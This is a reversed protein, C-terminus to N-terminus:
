LKGLRVAETHREVFLKIIAEELKKDKILKGQMMAKLQKPDLKSLEKWYNTDKLLNELHTYEEENKTKTPVDMVDEIKITLKKDSGRIVSLEKEKAYKIVAQKLEDLEKKIFSEQEKLDRYENVLKVGDDKMFKNLKMQETQYIHKYNPCEDQFDCWKCLESQKPKFNDTETTTEVAQILSVINNKLEELQQETKNVKIEKNFRLFHWILDAKKADKWFGKLGIQYLALQRDKEKDAQKPLSANTKYDRIEYTGDERQALRDIFGTIKYGEIDFLLRQEVAITKSQNFPHYTKYYDEICKLGTRYYNDANYEKKVIKVNEHWNKHWEQHYFDTLEELSNEKSTMRDKYLKELTDHVRSGMFAEISDEKEKKIKDVYQFKYKLPCTEFCGLKSHSYTVM